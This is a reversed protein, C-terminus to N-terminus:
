FKKIPVDHKRLAYGMQRPSIGLLRAAKAQVWGASEMADILRERESRGDLALSDLGDDTVVNAPSSGGGVTPHLSRPARGIPLPVFGTPPGGAPTWLAASLCEDKRCAFDDAHIEVGAALTATRRVCNELERVNGPFQCVTLVPLADAAFDLETGHESNFRGLFEHALLPIDTQRERLPPLFIM